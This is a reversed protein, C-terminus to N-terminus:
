SFPKSMLYGVFISIGNFLWLLGSWIEMYDIVQWYCKMGDSPMNQCWKWYINSGLYTFQDELKLAKSSVTSIIGKQKFCM